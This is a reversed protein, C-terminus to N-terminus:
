PNSQNRPRAMQRTARCTRVRCYFHRTTETTKRCVMSDGHRPCTPRKDYIWLPIPDPGSDDRLQDTM